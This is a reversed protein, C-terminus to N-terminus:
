VKVVFVSNIIQKEVEKNAIRKFRLGVIVGTGDNPRFDTLDGDVVPYGMFTEPLAKGKKVDFVVAVNNGQELVQKCLTTNHGSYSFTLHYNPINDAFKLYQKTYDYFQVEPFLQFINMGDIKVNAWDIDSTGNLRVSFDFNKKIAKRQAVQIEAVMWNMFYVEDEFFLKTKKIRANKIRKVGNSNLEMSARGSTALCGLRCEPTSYLCVNYGSQTSPALYIIYTLNGSVKENKKLKSSTNIGGLYSLGTQKKAQGITTFM